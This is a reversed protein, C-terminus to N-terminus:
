WMWIGVWGPGGNGGDGGTVGGGGGGGGSGIGGDGGRGGTGAAGATGGGSGGCARMPGRGYFFSMGNNGNGAAAVGAAINPMAPFRTAFSANQGTLAGGAFDTNATGVGGGAAGGSVPIGGTGWTQAGGAAGTHSGGVIGAQGALSVWMGLNGLMIANSAQVAGAAGAAGGGTASGNGGNGGANAIAVLDEVSQSGGLNPLLTITSATGSSGNVRVSGAGPRVYITPPLLKAPILIRTMAGSGGGGGGGRATGAAGTFGAGGSGGPGILLAFLMSVGNPIHLPKAPGQGSGLGNLGDGLFSHFLCSEPIPFDFM